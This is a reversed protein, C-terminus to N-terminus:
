FIKLEGVEAFYSKQAEWYSIRAGSSSRRREDM